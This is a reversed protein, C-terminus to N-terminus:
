DTSERNRYHLWLLVAIIAVIAGAILLARRLRPNRLTSPKRDTAKEEQPPAAEKEPERQEEPELETARTSM